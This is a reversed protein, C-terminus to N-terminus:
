SMRSIRYIMCASKKKYKKIVGNVSTSAAALLSSTEDGEEPDGLPEDDFEDTEETEEPEETDEEETEEVETMEEWAATEEPATQIEQLAGACAILLSAALIFILIKKLM